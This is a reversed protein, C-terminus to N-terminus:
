REVHTKFRALATDWQSSINALARSADDLPERDAEFLRERGQRIDRVLGAAQLVKLHKTIAQRTLTSGATLRSISLPSEQCLKMLLSLRTEDGLAAFLLANRRFSAIRNKRASRSTPM